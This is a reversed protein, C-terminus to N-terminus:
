QRGNCKVCPVCPHRTGGNSFSINQTLLTQYPYVISFTSMDVFTDMIIGNGDTHAGCGVLNNSAIRNDYVVNGSVVNHFPAMYTLDMGAPVYNGTSGSYTNGSACSPNKAEVCQTVVFSIGSGQYGSTWSNHYVLNQQVYYWEKNNFSVGSLNCHHIINDLIWIHHSSNGTGYTAADSGFCADAIGDTLLANNGDVEFGDVVVFNGKGAFGWM